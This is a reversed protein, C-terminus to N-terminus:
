ASRDSAADGTPFIRRGTGLARRSKAVYWASMRRDWSRAVCFEQWDLLFVESLEYSDSLLVIILFEFLQRDKDLPDPYVTGTKKARQLTKISYREGDRSLADVNKTGTPAPVLVPLDPRRKFLSIALREGLEGVNLSIGRKKAECDIDSRFKLLEEDSLASIDLLM